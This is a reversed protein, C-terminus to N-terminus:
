GKRVILAGIAISIITCVTLPIHEELFRMWMLHLAILIVVSIFYRDFLNTRIPLFGNRQSGAM